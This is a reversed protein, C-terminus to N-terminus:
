PTCSARIIKPDHQDRRELDVGWLHIWFSMARIWPYEFHEPHEHDPTNLINQLGHYGPHDLHETQRILVIYIGGGM